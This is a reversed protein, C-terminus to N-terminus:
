KRPLLNWLQKAKECADHVGVTYIEAGVPPGQMECCSCKVWFYVDDCRYGRDVEPEGGKKGVAGLPKCRPNPCPKLKRIRRSM